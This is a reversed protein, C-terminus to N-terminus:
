DILDILIDGGGGGGERSRRDNTLRSSMAELLVAESFGCTSRALKERKRKRKQHETLLIHIQIIQEFDRQINIYEDWDKFDMM